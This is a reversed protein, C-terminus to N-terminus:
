VFVLFGICVVEDVFKVYFVYWDVEFYVVVICIGMKKVIWMVCLVIEGWNVVFIKKM